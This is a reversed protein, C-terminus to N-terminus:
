VCASHQEDRRGRGRRECSPGSAGALLAAARGQGRGADRGGDWGGAKGRPGCGQGWRGRATRDGGGPIAPGPRPSRAGVSGIGRSFRAGHGRGFPRQASRGEPGCGRESGGKPGLRLAGLGRRAGSGVGGPRRQGGVGGGLVAGRLGPGCARRSRRRVSEARARTHRVCARVRVRVCACVCMCARVGVSDGTLPVPQVGLLRGEEAAFPAPM